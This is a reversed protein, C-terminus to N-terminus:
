LVIVKNPLEDVDDSGAPVHEALVAGIAGVAAIVGETLRGAAAEKVLPEIIMRWREADIKAEIGSDALVEAFREQRAVYLLVGTRNRTRALGRMTFERLAAQHARKRKVFSPVFRGGRGRWGLGALLLVAAILQILFIRPASVMTLWMLPWPVLLALSLALVIPVSRYHSAREEVVVVIEGATGSEARRVAEAIAQRDAEDM